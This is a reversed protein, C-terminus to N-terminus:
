NFMVLEDVDYSVTETNPVGVLAPNDMFMAASAGWQGTLLARHIGLIQVRKARNAMIGLLYDCTSGLSATHWQTPMPTPHTLACILIRAADIGVKELTFLARFIGGAHQRAQSGMSRHHLLTWATAFDPAHEIALSWEVIATRANDTLKNKLLRAFIHKYGELLLRRGLRSLNKDTMTLLAINTYPLHRCLELFSEPSDLSELLAEKLSPRTNLNSKRTKPHMARWSKYAAENAAEAIDLEAAHATVDRAQLAAILSKMENNTLTQHHSRPKTQKKDSFDTCSIDPSSLTLPSVAEDHLPFLSPLQSNESPTRFDPNPDLRSPNTSEQSTDEDNSDPTSPSYSSESSVTQSSPAVYLPTARDPIAPYGLGCLATNYRTRIRTTHTKDDDRWAAYMNDPIRLATFHAVHTGARMAITKPIVHNSLLTAIIMYATAPDITSSEVVDYKNQSVPHSDNLYFIEVFTTGHMAVHFVFLPERFLIVAAMCEEHSAWFRQAIARECSQTSTVVLHETIKALVDPISHEQTDGTYRKLLDRPLILEQHAWLPISMILSENLQKRIRNATMDTMTNSTIRRLPCAHFTTAALAYYFCSGFGPVDIERLHLSRILDDFVNSAADLAPLSLSPLPTTHSEPTLPDAVQKSTPAQSMNNLRTLFQSMTTQQTHTTPPRQIRVPSVSRTLNRRSKVARQRKLLQARAHRAATARKIRLDQALMEDTARSTSTRQWKTSANDPTAAEISRSRLRKSPSTAPSPGASADSTHQPHTPYTYVPKQHTLQTTPASGLDKTISPITSAPEIGNFMMSLPSQKHQPEERIQAEELKTVGNAPPQYSPDPSPEQSSHEIASPINDVDMPTAMDLSSSDQHYTSHNTPNATSTENSAAHIAKLAELRAKQQRAHEEKRETEMRRQTLEERVKASQVEELLREQAAKAALEQLYAKKKAAIRTKMRAAQHKQQEARQTPNYWPTAIWGKTTRQLTKYLASSDMRPDQADEDEAGMAGREAICNIHERLIQTFDTGIPLSTIPTLLDTLDITSTRLRIINDHQYEQTSDCTQATHSANACRTCPGRIPVDIDQIWISLKGWKICTKGQLIQPCGNSRLTVKWLGPDGLGTPDYDTQVNSVLDLKLQHQFIHRITMANIPGGQVNISFDYEDMNVATDITEEDAEFSPLLLHQLRGRLPIAKNHWEKALQKSLVTIVLRHATEDYDVYTVIKKFAQITTQESPSTSYFQRLKGQYTVDKNMQFNSSLQMVLHGRVNLSIADTILNHMEPTMTDFCFDPLIRTVTIGRVIDELHAREGETMPRPVKAFKCRGTTPFECPPTTSPTIPPEAPQTVAALWSAAKPTPNEEFLPVFQIKRVRELFIATKRYIHEQKFWEVLIDHLQQAETPIREHFTYLFTMKDEAEKKRTVRQVAAYIGLTDETTAGREIRDRLQMMYRQLDTTRQARSDQPQTARTPKPQNHSHATILKPAFSKNRTNSPSSPNDNSSPKTQKKKQSPSPTKNINEQQTTHIDHMRKAQKKQSKSTKTIFDTDPFTVYKTQYTEQQQLDKALEADAAIQSAHDPDETRAAASTAGPPDKM